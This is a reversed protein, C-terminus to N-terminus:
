RATKIFLSTGVILSGIAAAFLRVDVIRLWTTSACFLCFGCVWGIAAASVFLGTYRNSLNNWGTNFWSFFRQLQELVFPVVFFYAVCCAITAAALGIFLLASHLPTM